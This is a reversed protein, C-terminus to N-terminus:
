QTTKADNFFYVTKINPFIQKIDGNNFYVVQYGDSFIEKRVGSKFIIEKKENDYYKIIKGDDTRETKLLTFIPKHYKDPFKLDYTEDEEEENENQSNFKQKKQNENIEEDNINQPNSETYDFNLM